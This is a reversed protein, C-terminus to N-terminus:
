ISFGTFEPMVLSNQNSSALARTGKHALYTDKRAASPGYIKFNEIMVPQAMSYDELPILTTGKCSTKKQRFITITVTQTFYHCLWLKNFSFFM